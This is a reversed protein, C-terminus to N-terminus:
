SAHISREHVLSILTNYSPEGLKNIQIL